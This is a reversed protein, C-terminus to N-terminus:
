AEEQSARQQRKREADRALVENIIAPLIRFNTTLLRALVEPLDVLGQIAAQELVGVTGMAHLGRVIALDRAKGDDVLVVDAQLEQALIIAEQEGAELMALRADPSGVVPHVELWTPPAAMWTRVVAPTHPHQLERLVAHPILVRGFLVPLVHGCALVRLYRVPSNDSVVLM